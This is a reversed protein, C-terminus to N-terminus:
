NVKLSMIQPHGIKLVRHREGESVVDLIVVAVIIAMFGLTVAVMSDSSVVYRKRVATKLGDIVFSIVISVDGVDVVLSFSDMRSAM